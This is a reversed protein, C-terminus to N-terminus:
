KMNLIEDVEKLIEEKLDTPFIRHTRILKIKEESFRRGSKLYTYNAKKIVNSTLKDIGITKKIKNLWYSQTDERLENLGNYKTLFISGRKLTYKEDEIKLTATGNTVIHLVYIPHVFPQNLKHCETEYVFRIAKIGKDDGKANM